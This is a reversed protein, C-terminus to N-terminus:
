QNMLITIIQHAKIDIAAEGNVILIRDLVQENMNSFFAERYGLKLSLRTAKGENEYFRLVYSNGEYAKKFCSFVINKQKWSFPLSFEKKSTNSGYKSRILYAVPPYLFVDADAKFSLEETGADYPIYCFEFVQIGKCQCEPVPIAMSASNKRIKSNIVGMNGVSRMLTIKVGAVGTIHDHLSEYNYIGKCALAIGHIGKELALWERFPIIKTPPQYYECEPVEIVL